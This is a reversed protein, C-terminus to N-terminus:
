HGEGELISRAHFIWPVISELSEIVGKPSGPLAVITTKGVTGAVSRSMMALPTRMGGHTRMAEAIGPADKEIVDRVAEVTVDRPGLGTGGTVFIFSIESQAWKKLQAVIKERDDEVVQFDSIQVNHAEMIEKIKQGSEDERTGAAASDSCVLIAADLNEKVYRDRDSKGGKKELLRISSIELNKDVPKLLDYITLAAVSVATLMEMEIGTRGISKGIGNIAVGSREEGEFGPVKDGTSLLEFTIEMGDISVPHCHPILNHTNKGALFGAARAVDFINGKPLQDKRILDVTDPNCFVAGVAHATRLTITKSSIDRM